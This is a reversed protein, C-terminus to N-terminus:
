RKEKGIPPLDPTSNPEGELKKDRRAAEIIAGSREIVYYTEGKEFPPASCTTVIAESGVWVVYENMKCRTPESILTMLTFNRYSMDVVNTTFSVFSAGLISLAIWKNRFHRFLVTLLILLIFLLLNLIIKHVEVAQEAVLYKLGDVLWDRAFVLIMLLVWLTTALRVFGKSAVTKESIEQSLLFGSVFAGSLLMLSPVAEAIGVILDSPTAVMGFSLGWREFLLFNAIFSTIAMMMTAAAILSAMGQFISPEKAEKEAKKGM